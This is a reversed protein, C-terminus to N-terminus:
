TVPADDVGVESSLGHLQQMVVGICHESRLRAEERPPRGGGRDLIDDRGRGRVTERQPQEQAGRDEDADQDAQAHQEQDVGPEGEAAVRGWCWGMRARRVGETNVVDVVEQMSCRRRPCAKLRCFECRVDREEREERDGEEDEVADQQTRM